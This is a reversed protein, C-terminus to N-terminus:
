FFGSGFGDLGPSKNNGFSFMADRIEKDSFPKILCIQQDITLIKGKGIFNLNVSGSAQSTTGMNSHFHGLFHKVVKGFDDVKDGNDLYYLIKNNHGRSKM